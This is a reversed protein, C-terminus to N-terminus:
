RQQPPLQRLKFINLYRRDHRKIQTIFQYPGLDKPNILPAIKKMGWTRYYSDKSALGIRSDWAVYVIGMEYCQQTFEQINEGKVWATHVLNKKMDPYYLTIVHSMTTALKEGPEANEAFWDGLMKFEKDKHGQGVYRVMIFHNSVIVLCVLMSIAACNYMKTKGFLFSRLVFALVVIVLAIYPLFASAGSVSFTLPLLPILIAMWLAAIVAVIVNLALIMAKPFINQKHLQRWIIQLGYCCILLTVWAIPACYRHMSVMRMSHVSVYCFWFVPLALLKWKKKLLAYGVATISGIVAVIKSCLFLTAQANKIALSETSTIQANTFVAKIWSPIQVLPMFTTEWLLDLYKWGIHGTEHTFHGIYYVSGSKTMVKTAVIWMALPIAAAAARAVTLLKQKKTKRLIMDFVFVTFILAAGEYRVMSALSAFVYCFNSNQLMFYFTILCFFILTTEVIPDMLLNVTWPNLAAILAFWFAANGLFKKGILYLLVVNLPHLISNLMWGATLEPHQGTIIRSLGIQLMGLLPLRKFSTPLRFKMISKGTDIFAPFDSNPVVLYGYYILSQYVGFAFLVVIAFIHFQRQRREMDDNNILMKEKVVVKKRKRKM